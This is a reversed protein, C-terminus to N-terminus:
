YKRYWDIFEMAKYLLEKRDYENQIFLISEKARAEIGGIFIQSVSELSDSSLEQIDMITFICLEILFSKM